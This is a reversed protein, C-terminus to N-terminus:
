KCDWLIEAAKLEDGCFEQTTTGLTCDKCKKCSTFSMALAVVAVSLLVKKM